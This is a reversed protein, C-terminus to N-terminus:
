SSLYFLVVSYGGLDGSRHGKSNSKHQWRFLTTHESSILSRSATRRRIVATQVAIVTSASCCCQTVRKRVLALWFPSSRSGLRYFLMNGSQALYITYGTSRKHFVSLSFRNRMTPYESMRSQESLLHNDAPRVKPSGQLLLFKVKAMNIVGRRCISDFHQPKKRPNFRGSRSGSTDLTWTRLAENGNCPQEANRSCVPAAKVRVNINLYWVLHYRWYDNRKEKWTLV